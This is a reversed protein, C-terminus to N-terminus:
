GGNMVLALVDSSNGRAQHGFHQPLEITENVNEEKLSRIANRQLQVLKGVLNEKLVVVSFGGTDDRAKRQPVL